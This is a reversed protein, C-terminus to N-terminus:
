FPPFECEWRLKDFFHFKGAFCVKLIRKKGRTGRPLFCKYRLLHIPFPQAKNRVRAAQMKDYIFHTLSPKALGTSKNPPFAGKPSKEVPEQSPM